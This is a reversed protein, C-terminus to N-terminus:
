KVLRIYGKCNLIDEDFKHQDEENFYAMGHLENIKVALNDIHEGEDIANNIGEQLISTGKHCNHGELVYARPSFAETSHIMEKLHQVLTNETAWRGTKENIYSYKQGYNFGERMICPTNCFMGEIISRNLGEFRSWLLNVKARAFLKSVEAPEIWEHFSLNEDIEFHKALSKLDTLTLDHPYGVLAASFNPMEAKLKKLAEFIKHHRKFTAWGSVIIIDIDREIGDNPMFNNHNVWWNSSLLLPKLNGDLRDLFDFDRQEYAMVFVPFELTSYALIGPECTGAWSPELVFHYKQALSPMDFLKFLLPFYFSYKVIIVGKSDNTPSKIILCVGDFINLPDEFYRQTNDAPEIRTVLSALFRQNASTDHLVFKRVLFIVAIESGLWATRHLKSLTEVALLTNKNILFWIAKLLYLCSLPLMLFKLDHKLFESLNSKFIHKKINM